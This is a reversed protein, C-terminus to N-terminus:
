QSQELSATFCFINHSVGDGILHSSQLRFNKNLYNNQCHVNYLLGQVTEMKNAESRRKSVYSVFFQAEPLNITDPGGGITTCCSWCSSILITQRNVSNVWNPVGHDVSAM